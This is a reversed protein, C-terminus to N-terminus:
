VTSDEKNEIAQTESQAPTEPIDILLGCDALAKDLKEGHLVLEDISMEDIRKEALRDLAQVRIDHKNNVMEKALNARVGYPADKDTMIEFIVKLGLTALKGLEIERLQHIYEQLHPLKVLKYAYVRTFGSAKAANEAHGGNEVYAYAFDKQQQTLGKTGTIQGNSDRTTMGTPMGVRNPVHDVIAQPTFDMSLNYAM